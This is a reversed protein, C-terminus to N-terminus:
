HHDPDPPAQQPGPMQPLWDKLIPIKLIVLDMLTDVALGAIFAVGPSKPLPASIQWGIGFKSVIWNLFEPHFLLWFAASDAAARVLLPIWSREFFQRYSNAVPNPGTVLFYARKLVYIFMGLFFMFWLLVLSWNPHM